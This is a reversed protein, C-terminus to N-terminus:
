ISSEHEVTTVMKPSEHKNYINTLNNAKLEKRIFNELKQRSHKEQELQKQLSSVMMKLEKNSKKTENLDGVLDNRNKENNNELDSNRQSLPLSKNLPTTEQVNINVSQRTKTKCFTEIVNLLKLDDDAGHYKGFPESLKAKKYMFRKLTQNAETPNDKNAQVDTPLQFHPILPPHPRMSFTKTRTTSNTISLSNNLTSGSLNGSLGAFTSSQKSHVPSTLSSNKFSPSNAITAVNSRLSKNNLSFQIKSLQNSILEIIMKLDYNTACVILFQSGNPCVLEFCYKLSEPDIKSSGYSKSITETNAVKKCHIVVQESNVFPIQMDFDFENQKNQSHSLLVLHNAFLLLIRDKREGAEDIMIVSSLFLSEGHQFIDEDTKNIRSSMIDLECEKKHRIERVSTSLEAYFEMSRQVDGRDSHFDETFRYLEKLLKSYTELQKFPTALYKTLYLIVAASNKNGPPINMRPYSPEFFKSLADKKQNITNTFRPNNKAYGEYVLKFKAAMNILIYGLKADSDEPIEKLEQFFIQHCRLLEDISSNLQNLFTGQFIEINKNAQLPILVVKVFKCMDDLFEEEVRKFESIIKIRFIEDAQSETDLDYQRSYANSESPNLHGDLIEMIEVYNSPFWGTRGNLTGELWTEDESSQTVIIVEDSILTLEDNMTAKYNYIAKARKGQYKCGNTALDTM